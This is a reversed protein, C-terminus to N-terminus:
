GTGPERNSFGFIEICRIAAAINGDVRAVGSVIVDLPNAQGAAIALFTRVDTTLTFAPDAAWGQATEVTGDAVTVSFVEGDIDMQYTEKVGRALEPRFTARMALAGWGPARTGEAEEPEPRPFGFIEVCRLGAEESGQIVAKGQAAAEAPSIQRAGMAMLTEVDTSIVLDPQGVAGQYTQLTGDEVKLQFTDDDIRFEYIERVGAAAQANFTSRMALVGWGPRLVDEAAPSDMTEMGWRALELLAPELKIGRDTLEYVVAGSPPPMQRKRVLGAAELDQLRKALLNTGIGPLGDLLDKYRRPGLMLERILLLTWREGVLDLARALSEFQGYTRKGMVSGLKSGV